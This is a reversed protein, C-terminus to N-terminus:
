RGDHDSSSRPPIPTFIHVIERPASRDAAVGICVAWEPRIKQRAHQPATPLRRRMEIIKLRVANGQSIYAEGRLPCRGGFRPGPPRSIESSALECIARRHNIIRDDGHGEVFSIRHNFRSATMPSRIRGSLRARFGIWIWFEPWTNKRVGRRTTAHRRSSSMLGPRKTPRQDARAAAAPRRESQIGRPSSRCCVEPAADEDLPAGIGPWGIGLEDPRGHGPLSGTKGLYRPPPPSVAHSIDIKGGPGGGARRAFTRAAAGLGYPINFSTRGSPKRCAAMRGHSKRRCSLLRRRSRARGEHLVETQQTISSLRKAAGEVCGYAPHGHALAQQEFGQDVVASSTNTVCYGEPLPRRRRRQRGTSEARGPGADDIKRCHGVAAPRPGVSATRDIGDAAARDCRRGVSSIQGHPRCMLSGRQRQGSDHDRRITGRPLAAACGPGELKGLQKGAPRKDDFREDAPSPFSPRRYPV